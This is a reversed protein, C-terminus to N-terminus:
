HNPHTAIVPGSTNIGRVATTGAAPRPVRNRGAACAYSYTPM